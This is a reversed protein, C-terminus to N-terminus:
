HQLNLTSLREKASISPVMLMQMELGYVLFMRAFSCPKVPVHEVILANGAHRQHLRIWITQLYTKSLYKEQKQIHHFNPTKNHISQQYKQKGLKWAKNMSQIKRQNIKNKRDRALRIKTAFATKIANKLVRHPAAQKAQM